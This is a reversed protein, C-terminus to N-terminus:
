GQLALSKHVDKGTGDRIESKTVFKVHSTFQLVILVRVTHIQLRKVIPITGNVQISLQGFTLRKSLEVSLIM